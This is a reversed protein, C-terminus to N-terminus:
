KSLSSVQKVMNVKSDQKKLTRRTVGGEFNDQKSPYRVLSPKKELVPPGGELHLYFCPLNYMANVLM